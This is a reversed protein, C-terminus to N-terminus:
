RDRLGVRRGEPLSARPSADAIAHFRPRTGEVCEQALATMTSFITTGVGPLKSDIRETGAMAGGGQSQGPLICARLM